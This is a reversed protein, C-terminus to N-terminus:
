GTTRGARMAPFMAARTTAAAEPSNVRALNLAHISLVWVTAMYM